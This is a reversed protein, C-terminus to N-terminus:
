TAAGGVPRAAAPRTAFGAIKENLATILADFGDRDLVATYESRRLALESVTGNLFVDIIRWGDPGSRLRYDLQVADKGPVVVRSRVLVTGQASPEEGLIEFREGTYGTFRGAYTAVSLRGFVSVFKEQQAPSLEKWRGGVSLRAMAAFDFAQQLAPELKAVRGEFGLKEAHKMVDLYAADLREITATPEDAASRAGPAFGVVALAVALCSLLRLAPTM